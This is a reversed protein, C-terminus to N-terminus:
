VLGSREETATWAWSSWACHPSVCVGYGREERYSGESGGVERKRGEEGGWSGNRVKKRRIWSGQGPEKWLSGISTLSFPEAAAAPWEKRWPLYLPAPLERCSRAGSRWSWEASCKAEAIWWPEVKDPALSCPSFFSPDARERKTSWMAICANGFGGSILQGCHQSLLTFCTQSLSFTQNIHTWERWQHFAPRANM